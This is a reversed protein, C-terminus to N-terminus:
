GHQRGDEIQVLDMPVQITLNIVDGGAEIEDLNIVRSPLYRLTEADYVFVLQPVHHLRLVLKQRSMESLPRM